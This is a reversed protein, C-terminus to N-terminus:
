ISNLIKNIIKKSPLKDVNYYNSNPNIISSEPKTHKPIYLAHVKKKLSAALCIPGSENGIVTNCTNIIKIIESIKRKYTFIIRNSNLIIKPFLKLLYKKNPSFNIFIKHKSMLKMIILIFNEIDWNNQDHHSDINIFINKNKSIKNKTENKKLFFNHNKNNLNLSNTFKIIKESVTLHNNSSDKDFYFKGAGMIKKEEVNSLLVPFVLRKTNSTLLILDLKLSNIKNKLNIIKKLTTILDYRDNDFSIIKKYFNENKFVESAKNVKNSLIIIKKGYTEYLSRLLPLHYILDGIGRGGIIVLIKKKM